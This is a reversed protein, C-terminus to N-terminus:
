KVGELTIEYYKLAAISEEYLQKSSFDGAKWVQYAARQESLETPLKPTITNYLQWEETTYGSAQVREAYTLIDNVTGEIQIGYIAEAEDKAALAIAENERKAVVLEKAQLSLEDSGELAKITQSSNSLTELSFGQLSQSSMQGNLGLFQNAADTVVSAQQGAISNLFDYATGFAEDFSIAEPKAFSGGGSETSFYLVRVRLNTGEGAAKAEALTLAKPFELGVLVTESSPQLESLPKVMWVQPGDGWPTDVSGVSTNPQRNCAALFMILAISLMIKLRM